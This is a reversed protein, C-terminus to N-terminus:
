VTLEVTQYGEDTTQCIPDPKQDPRQIVSLGIDEFGDCLRFLYISIFHICILSYVTLGHLQFIGGGVGSIRLMSCVGGKEKVM